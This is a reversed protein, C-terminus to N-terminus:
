SLHKPVVAQLREVLRPDMFEYDDPIGLVIVRQDRLYPGFRKSLKTRHSQEMVFITDAWILLEPTVPVDADHDIGASCVEIGPWDAFV